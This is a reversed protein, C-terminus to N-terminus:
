LMTNQDVPKGNFVGILQQITTAVQTGNADIKLNVVHWIDDDQNGTANVIRYRGLQVGNVLVTVVAKSAAFTPGLHDPHRHSYNHVWYHYECAVFLGGASPSRCVTTREPGNATTDDIDLDAFDLPARNRYM